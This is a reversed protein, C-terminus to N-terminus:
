EYHIVKIIKCDKKRFEAYPEGGKITHVTGSVKWIRKDSSLEAVFPKYNYIENGYIPLWIAEAIKIATEKDPVLGNPPIYNDSQTSAISLKFLLLLISIM